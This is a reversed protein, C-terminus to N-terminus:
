QPAKRGGGFCASALWFLEFSKSTGNPAAMDCLLMTENVLDNLHRHVHIDQGCVSM